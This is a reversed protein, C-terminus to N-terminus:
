PDAPVGLKRANIQNFLQLFVFTQFVMTYVICKPTPAGVVITGKFAPFLAIDEEKWFFRDDHSDDFGLEFIRDALFLVCAIVAIQGLAWTVINRWM